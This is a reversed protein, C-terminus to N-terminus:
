IKGGNADPLSCSTNKAPSRLCTWKSSSHWRGRHLSHSEASPMISQKVPLAFRVMVAMDTHTPTTDAAKSLQTILQAPAPLQPPTCARDRSVPQSDIARRV